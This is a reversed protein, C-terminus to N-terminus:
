TKIEFGDLHFLHIHVPQQAFSSAQHQAAHKLLAIVKCGQPELLLYELTQAATSAARIQPACHLGLNASLTAVAQLNLTANHAHTYSHGQALKLLKGFFCGWIIKHFGHQHAERLSYGVFDAAQIFAQPPEQPYLQQLLRESRRGTTIYVTKLNLAQALDLQQRISARFAAHSFPIVTGHTGLISIGGLIGLRENFTHKAIEAGQPVSISVCMSPMSPWATQYWREQLAFRIQSQPVPNIAWAGVPLPLGPLTVRGIGIGGVIEISPAMNASKKRFSLTVEINAGNTADPDSGGDKCVRAWAQGYAMPYLLPDLSAATKPLLLASQQIPINLYARAHQTKHDQTSSIPPLPTKVHSLKKGTLLLELCALSAATAASGTTFGQRLHM